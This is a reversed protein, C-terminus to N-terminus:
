TFESNIGFDLAYLGHIQIAIQIQIQLQEDEAGHQDHHKIRELQGLELRIGLVIAKLAVHRNDVQQAREDNHGNRHVGDPGHAQRWDVGVLHASLVRHELSLGSNIM